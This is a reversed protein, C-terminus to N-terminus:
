ILEYNNMKAFTRVVNRDLNSFVKTHTNLDELYWQQTACDYDEFAPKKNPDRLKPVRVVPPLTEPPPIYYAIPKREIKFCGESLGRVKDLTSEYSM